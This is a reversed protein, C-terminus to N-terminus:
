SPPRPPTRSSSRLTTRALRVGHRRHLESYLSAVESGLGTELIDHRPVVLTVALGLQRLSAATEAAIWGGGAVVASDADQAAARLRDADEVTRLVFARSPMPVDPGLTHASAGTAILLRDFAIERDDDLRLRRTRADLAVARRGLHLEVDERAYFDAPQALLADTSTDGRLYDKSLPPREYPLRSEAAVVVLRGDFGEARLTRAAEAGALGGGVIVHTQRTM